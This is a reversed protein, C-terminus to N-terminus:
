TLRRAYRRRPWCMSRLRTRSAVTSSTGAMTRSLSRRSCGGSSTSVSFSPSGGCRRVIIKANPLTAVNWWLILSLAMAACVHNFPSPRLAVPRTVLLREAVRACRSGLNPLIPLRPLRAITRVVAATVFGGLPSRLAAEEAADWGTLERGDAAVVSWTPGFSPGAAFVEIRTEKLLLLSRAVRALKEPLGAAARLTLGTRDPTRLRAGAWGWVSGPLFPVLSVLDIWPFNGLELFLGFGAHMGALGVIGALRARSNRLPCILLFPLFLEAAITAYTLWRLLPGFQRFWVALPTALTEIHLAYYVATGKPWWEAGNKMLVTSWYLICVQLMLAVGAVSRHRTDVAREDVALGADVSWRAGVPLFMAWFLLLRLLVDGAQLVMPNRAQLSINLIWTLVTMLRTRWGVLLGVAAIAAAVFLLLAFPWTGNMLHLSVHREQGLNETLPGRPLVGLDTYHARLDVM